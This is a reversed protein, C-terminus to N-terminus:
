NGHFELYTQLFNKTFLEYASKKVIVSFVVQQYNVFVNYTRVIKQANKKGRHHEKGQGCWDDSKSKDQRM